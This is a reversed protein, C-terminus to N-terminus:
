HDQWYCAQAQVDLTSSVKDCLSIRKECFLGQADWISLVGDTIGWTRLYECGPINSPFRYTLDDGAEVAHEFRMTVSQRTNNNVMIEAKGDDAIVSGTAIWSAAAIFAARHRKM